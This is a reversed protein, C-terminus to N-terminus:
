DYHSHRAHDYDRQHQTWWTSWVADLSEQTNKDLSKEIDRQFDSRIEMLIMGTKGTKGYFFNNPRTMAEDYTNM